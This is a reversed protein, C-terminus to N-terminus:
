RQGALIQQLLAVNPPDVVIEVDPDATKLAHVVAPLAEAGSGLPVLHVMLRASKETYSLTLADYWQFALMADFEKGHTTLYVAPTGDYSEVAQLLAQVYGPVPAELALRQRESEVASPASPPLGFSRTDLTLGFAQTSAACLLVLATGGAWRSRRRGPPLSGALNVLGMGLVALAILELALLYKVSYYSLTGTKSIQAGAMFAVVALGVVVAWAAASIRSAQDAAPNFGPRDPRGALLALAVSALVIVAATGYDPAPVGGVAYLVEETSIKSLQGLAPIAGLLAFVAICGNLLYARRHALWRHRNGPLVLVACAGILFTALLAWNHMVGVAACSAAFLTLPQLVRINLVMLVAFAVALAAAVYFNQFGHMPAAAGPGYIWGAAVLLVTPAAAFFRRRFLPLSCLAAAVLTVALISVFASLVTYSVLEGGPGAARAGKALEALLAVTAHFGQPYNHFQWPGGDPSPGLAGLIQGHTRVMYYMNFHSANDWSMTLLTMADAATRVKLFHALTGAAMAAVALPLADIARIQPLLSRIRGRPNHGSAIWGGLWAAVLALLITARGTSSSLPFPIWWLVPAMGLLVTLAILLRHSLSRATPLTLLLVASAALVAPGGTVDAGRGLVVATFVVAAVLVGRIVRGARGQAGNGPDAM